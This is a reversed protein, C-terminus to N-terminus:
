DDSRNLINIQNNLMLAAHDVSTVPKKGKKAGDLVHQAQKIYMLNFDTELTDSIKTWDGTEALYLKVPHNLEWEISGLDGCISYRRRPTRQIYDAQFTALVGNKFKVSIAAVDETDIELSGTRHTFAKVNLIPGFMWAMLDLEHSDYVM